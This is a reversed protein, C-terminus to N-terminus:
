LSPAVRRLTYAPRAPKKMSHSEQRSLLGSSGPMSPLSPAYHTCSTHQGPQNSRMHCL